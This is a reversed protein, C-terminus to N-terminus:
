KARYLFTVIQARTCPSGPAFSTTSVGDTIGNAVAWAVAAAYYADSDVDSFRSGSAQPSGAARHLFTVTQGRTVTADPSFTTAGTGTTIGNEVAWLVAKYYYAGEYAQANTIEGASSYSDGPLGSMAEAMSGSQDLVLVIDTPKNKKEIQTVIEGTIYAELDITYTGDNQLTATKSLQIPSDDNAKVDAGENASVMMTPLMTMIMATSLFAGLIRSGTKKMNKM